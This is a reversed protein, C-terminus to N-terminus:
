EVREGKAQFLGTIARGEDPKWRHIASSDVADTVKLGVVLDGSRVEHPNWAIRMECDGRSGRLREFRRDGDQSAM